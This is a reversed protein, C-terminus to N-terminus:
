NLLVAILMIMFRFKREKTKRKNIETAPIPKDPASENAAGVAPWAFSLLALVLDRGRVPPEALFAGATHRFRQSSSRAAQRVEM